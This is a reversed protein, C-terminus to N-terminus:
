ALYRMLSTTGKTTVKKADRLKGIRYRLPEGKLGTAKEIEAIKAGDKGAKKIVAVIQEDSVNVKATTKPKQAFRRKTKPTSKKSGVVAPKGVRQGRRAAAERAGRELIERGLSADRDLQETESLIVDLAKRIAEVAQRVNATSMNASTIGLDWIKAFEFPAMM